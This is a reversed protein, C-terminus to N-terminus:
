NRAHSAATELERMVSNINAAGSLFDRLIKRMGKDSAAGFAPPQLDSLDFRKTKAHLVAQALRRTTPDPYADPTLQRNPSIGGSHVWLRAAKVTALFHVLRQGDDNDTLLAAVDGGVVVSSPESGDIAPFPFVGADHAQPPDIQRAVFDGEYVMAAAPRVSFVQDVSDEFGTKMFAGNRSGALWDRRLMESMRTLAVRVTKDTWPIRHAALDDYHARGATRLYVNEFWDTLTWGDAGAVSFPVFGAHHLKNATRELQPWTAAPSVGVAHFLRRSYWFTSKNAAKFWVGYLRGNVTGVRRWFPGQNSDVLRRTSAAIPEFEGNRALERLLGPQPLLAVDPPCQHHLRKLLTKAIDRTEYAYTVPIGTEQSFRELVAEFGKAERGGWPGAIVLRRRASHEDGQQRAVRTQGTTDCRPTLPVSAVAQEPYPAPGASLLSVAVLLVLSAAIMMWPGHRRIRFTRRGDRTHVACEARIAGLVRDDIGPPLAPIENRVANVARDIASARGGRHLPHRAGAFNRRTPRNV